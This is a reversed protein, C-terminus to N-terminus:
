MLLQPFPERIKGRAGTGLLADVVVDSETEKVQSSDAVVMLRLDSLKSDIKELVQWNTRTESSKFQCPHGLLLVEVEFGLNLLHRAAVFGDGGNGGVGTFITVRGPEVIEAIKHALSCGANEMLSSRSIGMAEANADVVMMDKPTM